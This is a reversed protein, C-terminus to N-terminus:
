HSHETMEGDVNHHHTLLLDTQGAQRGPHLSKENQLLALRKSVFFSQEQKIQKMYTQTM